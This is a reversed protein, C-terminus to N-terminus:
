GFMGRFFRKLGGAKGGPRRERERMDRYLKALGVATAYKPDSYERAFGQNPEGLRVEANGFVASALRGLGKMQSTGGTLFVTGSFVGEANVKKAIIAFLERLRTETILEMKYLSVHESFEKMEDEFSDLDIKESISEDRAFANGYRLKLREADTARIRLGYSIDNTVHDGGVPIVGTCVVAGDRFLAFDSTGAGIDIVLRNKDMESFSRVSEASALSAPFLGKVEMGFRNPIQYLETLYADDADIVWMDYTLERGSLGLPEELERRDLLYRRRVRQVMHRNEPVRHLCVSFADDRAAAKDEPRVVGSKVSTLGSVPFGGVAAGSVALCASRIRGAAGAQREAELIVSQVSEALEGLNIIEGKRMGETKASFAGCIKLQPALDVIFVKTEASGIDIVALINDQAM